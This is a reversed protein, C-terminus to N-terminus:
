ELLVVHAVVGGVPLEFGLLNVGTSGGVRDCIGAGGRDVLGGGIDEVASLVGLVQKREGLKAVDVRANLVRGLIHDFLANCGELASCCRQKEGRALGGRGDGHEVNSLGAVVDDGGGRDIAAGVVEELVREFLKADVRGENFILVIRGLPGAGDAGVGLQQEGLRDAVGLDVNEVNALNGINRV